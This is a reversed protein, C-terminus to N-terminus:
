KRVMVATAVFTSGGPPVAGMIAVVVGPKLDSCTGGSFATAATTTAVKDGVTITLAPCSGALVTITGKIPTGTTTSTTTALRVYSAVISGDAQATGAVGV